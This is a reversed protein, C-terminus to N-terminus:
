KWDSDIPGGLLNHKKLSMKIEYSNNPSGDFTLDLPQWISLSDRQYDTLDAKRMSQPKGASGGGKIRIMVKEPVVPDDFFRTYLEGANGYVVVTKGKVTVAGGAGQEAEWDFTFPAGMELVQEEDKEVKFATSKGPFILCSDESEKKGKRIIGYAIRYTGVPVTVPKKGLAFYAGKFERVEEIVVVQPAVKGKFKLSVSGTDVDLKRTRVTYDDPSLKLRYFDGDVELYETFPGAVKGKGVIMADCHSFKPHLDTTMDQKGGSDGFVGSANDDFILVDQELVKGKLYCAPQYRIVYQDPQPGANLSLTFRSEQTGGTAALWAYELKKKKGDFDEYEKEMSVLNPKSIVKIERPKDEGEEQMFVKVGERHVRFKQGLPKFGTFDAPGNGRLVFDQWAMTNQSSNFAPLIFKSTLKPEEVYRLAVPDSYRQGAADKAWSTGTNGAPTSAEGPKADPDYGQAKLSDRIATVEGQFKFQRYGARSLLGDIEDYKKVAELQQENEQYAKAIEAICYAQYEVEGIARLGEAVEGFQTLTAQIKPKDKDAKAKNIVNLLGVYQSCLDDRKKRQDLDMGMVRKMRLEYVNSGKEEDLAKGLAKIDDWAAISDNYAMQAELTNYIFKCEARDRSAIKAMQRVDGLEMAEKFDAWVKNQQESFGQAAADVALAAGLVLATWMSVSFLKM